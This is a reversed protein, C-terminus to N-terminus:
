KSYKIVLQNNDIARSHITLGRNRLEVEVDVANLIDEGTTFPLTMKHIDKEEGRGSGRESIEVIPPLEPPLEPM